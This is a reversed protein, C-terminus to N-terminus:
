IKRCLIKEIYLECKNDNKTDVTEFNIVNDVDVNEFVIEEVKEDEM